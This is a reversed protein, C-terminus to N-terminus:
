VARQSRQLHKWFSIQVAIVNETLIVTFALKGQAFFPLFKPEHLVVVTFVIAFLISTRAAREAPKRVKLQSFLLLFSCSLPVQYWYILRTLACTSFVFNNLIMM